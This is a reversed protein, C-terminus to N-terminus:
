RPKQSEKRTHQVSNNEEQKVINWYTDLFDPLPVGNEKIAKLMERKGKAWVIATAYENRVLLDDVTRMKGFANCSSVTKILFFPDFYGYYTRSIRLLPQMALGREPSRESIQQINVCIDIDGALYPNHSVPEGNAKFDKFQRALSGFVVTNDRYAYNELANFIASFAHQKHELETM